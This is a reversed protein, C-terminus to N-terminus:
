GQVPCPLPGPRCQGARARQQGARQTTWPMRKPEKSFIIGFLTAIALIYAWPFSYAFGYALRHPNMYSIWSYLYLGIHPRSFIIVPLAGFVIAAILLDRM